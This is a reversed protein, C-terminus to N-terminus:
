RRQRTGAEHEHNEARQLQKRFDLQAYLTLLYNQETSGSEDVM